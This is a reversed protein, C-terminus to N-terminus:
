AGGSTPRVEELGESGCNMEVNFVFEYRM